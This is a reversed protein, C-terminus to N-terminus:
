FLEQLYICENNLSLQQMKLLSHMSNNTGVPVCLCAIFSILCDEYSFDSLFHSNIVAFIRFM